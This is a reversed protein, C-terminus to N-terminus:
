KKDAKKKKAKKPAKKKEAEKKAPKEKKIEKKAPKKEAKKAPKAKKAEKKKPEEKKTEKKVPKKTEKEKKEEKPTEQKKEEKKDAKEEVPKLEEVAKETVEPEKIDVRDPMRVHPPLVSVTVGVVGMKLKEKRFGIQVEDKATQGCKPLFGRVFRWSRARSSPVRGSIIIEAGIAGAEMIRNINEDINNETKYSAVNSSIVTLTSLFFIVIITSIKKRM